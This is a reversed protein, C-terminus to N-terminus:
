FENNEGVGGIEDIENTSAGVWDNIIDSCMTACRKFGDCM